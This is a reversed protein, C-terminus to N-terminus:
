DLPRLERNMLCMMIAGIAWVNTHEGLKGGTLKPHTVPRSTANRVFLNQEPACWHNAGSGDNYAMPNLPDNGDTLISLGLDGTVARAYSPFAGSPDPEDLWVNGFHLDRHVMPKWDPNANAEDVAGFQLLLCADVLNNLISWLAPERIPDFKHLLDALGDPTVDETSLIDGLSGYPCYEM